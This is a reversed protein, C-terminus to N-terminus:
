TRRFSTGSTTTRRRPRRRSTCRRRRPFQGPGRRRRPRAGVLLYARRSRAGRFPRPRRAYVELRPDRHLFLIPDALMKGISHECLHASAFGVRTTGRAVPAPLEAVDDLLSPAARSIAAGLSSVLEKDDDGCQHALNFFTKGVRGAVVSDFHEDELGDCPRRNQEDLDQSAISALDKKLRARTEALEAAPPIVPPILALANLRASGAMAAYDGCLAGNGEAGNDYAIRWARVM